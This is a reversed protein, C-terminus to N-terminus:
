PVDGSTKHGNRLWGTANGERRHGELAQGLVDEARTGAYMDATDFTTIGLDFASRTRARPRNHIKSLQHGGYM